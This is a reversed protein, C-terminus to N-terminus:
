AAARNKQGRGFPGLTKWKSEPKAPIVLWIITGLVTLILGTALGPRDGYGKRDSLYSAGITSLLWVYMWLLNWAGDTIGAYLLTM